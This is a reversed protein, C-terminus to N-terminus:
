GYKISSLGIKYIFDSGFLKQIETLIEERISDLDEQTQCEELTHAGVVRTVADTVLSKKSDLNETGGMKKYDKHKTNQQLTLTFILYSRKSSTTTTGDPNVVTSASLPIMMEALDYAETQSLPVDAVPKGSPTYLELNLATAISTILEATKKNTGTVSIMMVATMAINVILLVLILLSLLNKKM